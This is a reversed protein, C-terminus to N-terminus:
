FYLFEKAARGVLCETWVFECKEYDEFCDYSSHDGGRIYYEYSVAWQEHVHVMKRLTAGESCPGDNAVFEVDVQKMPKVPFM